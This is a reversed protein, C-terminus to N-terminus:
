CFGFFQFREKVLMINRNSHFALLLLVATLVRTGRIIWVMKVLQRLGPRQGYMLVGPRYVRASFWVCASIAVLMLVITLVIECWAVVEFLSISRNTSSSGPRLRKSRPPSKISM